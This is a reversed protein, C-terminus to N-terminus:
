VGLFQGAMELPNSGGSFDMNNIGSSLGGTIGGVMNQMAQSSNLYGSARAAAANNIQNAQQQGGTLDLNSMNQSAAQGFQGLQATSNQGIQTGGMLSQYNTMYTNLANQYDQQYTSQALGQGYDQLAKGTNGSMLNGTAAANEDIANTGQQLRFQYGPTNEAQQLTPAQFGQKLLNSLNNASTQGLQQYPQEATQTGSWVGNQFNQANQQNQLELNQAQQAGTTEAGAASGAANSGLVGSVISGIIGM